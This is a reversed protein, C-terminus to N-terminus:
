TATRGSRCAGRRRDPPRRTPPDAASQGLHADGVNNRFFSGDYNVKAFGRDNSFELGTDFETTRHDVPVAVEIAQTFGFGAGFPQTGDRLTNKM